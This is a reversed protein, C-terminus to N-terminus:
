RLSNERDHDFPSDQPAGGGQAPLDHSHSQSEHQGPHAGRPMHLDGTVHQCHADQWDYDVMLLHAVTAQQDHTTWDSGRLRKAHDILNAQGSRWLECKGLDKPFPTTIGTDKNVCAPNSCPTLKGAVDKIYEDILSPTATMSKSPDSSYVKIEGNAGRARISAALQCQSAPPGNPFCWAPMTSYRCALRALLPACRALRAGEPMTSTESWRGTDKHILQFCYKLGGSHSRGCAQCPEDPSRREFTNSTGQTGQPPHRSPALMAITAHAESLLGSAQLHAIDATYQDASSDGMGEVELHAVLAGPAMRRGRTREEIPRQQAAARVQAPLNDKALRAPDCLATQVIVRYSELGLTSDRQHMAYEEWAKDAARETFVDKIQIPMAEKYCRLIERFDIDRGSRCVREAERAFREHFEVHQLATLDWLPLRMAKLAKLVETTAFEIAQEPTCNPLLSTLLAAILDTPSTKGALLGEAAAGGDTWIGNSWRVLTRFHGLMVTYTHYSRRLHQQHANETEREHLFALVFHVAVAWSKGTSQLSGYVSDLLTHLDVQFTDPDLSSIPCRHDKLYTRLDDKIAKAPKWAPGATRCTSGEASSIGHQSYGWGTSAPPRHPAKGPLPAPHHTHGGPPQSSAQQPPSPTFQMGVPSPRPPHTPARPLPQASSQRAPPAEPIALRDAAVQRTDGEVMTIEYFPPSRSTIVETITVETNNPIYIAKDGPALSRSYRPEAFVEPIHSRPTPDAPPQHHHSGQHTTPTQGHQAPPAAPTPHPQPAPPGRHRGSEPQPSLSPPNPPNTGTDRAARSPSQPTHEHKCKQFAEQADKAWTHRDALTHIVESNYGHKNVLAELEEFGATGEEEGSEKAMAEYWIAASLLGNHIAENAAEIDANLHPQKHPSSSAGLFRAMGGWTCVGCSRLLAPDLAAGFHTLIKCIASPDLHIKTWQDEFILAAVRAKFQEVKKADAIAKEASRQAPEAASRPLSQATNAPSKPPPTSKLAPPEQPAQTAKAMLTQGLAKYWTRDDKIRVPPPALGDLYRGIDQLLTQDQIGDIVALLHVNLTAGDALHVGRSTFESLLHSRIDTNIDRCVWAQAAQHVETVLTRHTDVLPQTESDFSLDNVVRMDVMHNMRREANWSSNHTGGPHAWARLATRVGKVSFGSTGIKLQTIEPRRIEHENESGCTDKRIGAILAAHFTDNLLDDTFWNSCMAKKVSIHTDQAGEILGLADTSYVAEGDLDQAAKIMEIVAAATMFTDNLTDFTKIDSDQSPVPRQAHKDVGVGAWKLNSAVSCVGALHRAVMHTLYAPDAMQTMPHDERETVLEFVQQQMMELTTHQATAEQLVPPAGMLSAALTEAEMTAVMLLQLEAQEEHHKSPLARPDLADSLAVRASGQQELDGFIQPAQSDTEALTPWKLKATALTQALLARLYSAPPNCATHWLHETLPTDDGRGRLASGLRTQPTATGYGGVVMIAQSRQPPPISAMTHQGLASRSEAHAPAPATTDNGEPAAPHTSLATECPRYSDASPSLETTPETALCVCTGSCAYQTTGLPERPEGPSDACAQCLSHEADHEGEKTIEKTVMLHQSGMRDSAPRPELTSSACPTTEEVAPPQQWRATLSTRYEELALGLLNPGAWNGKRLGSDDSPDLNVGFYHELSGVNTHEVYLLRRDGTSLLAQRATTSHGYQAAIVSQIIEAITDERLGGATIAYLAVQRHIHASGSRVVKDAAGKLHPVRKAMGYAVGQALTLLRKGDYDYSANNFPSLTDDHALIRRPHAHDIEKQQDQTQSQQTRKHRQWNGALSRWTNAMAVMGLSSHVAAMVRPLLGKRRWVEGEESLPPRQRLLPHGRCHSWFAWTLVYSAAKILSAKKPVEGATYTGHLNRNNNLYRRIDKAIGEPLTDADRTPSRIVLLITMISACNLTAKSSHMRSIAYAMLLHAAQQKEAVSMAKGITGGFWFDEYESPNSASTVSTRKEYPTSPFNIADRQYRLPQLLKRDTHWPQLVLLTGDHMIFAAEPIAILKSKTGKGKHLGMIGSTSGEHQRLWWINSKPHECVAGPIMTINVQLAKLEHVLNPVLHENEERHPAVHVNGGTSHRFLTRDFLSSLMVLLLRQRVRGQGKLQIQWTQGSDHWTWGSVSPDSARALHLHSHRQMLATTSASAALTRQEGIDSPTPITNVLLARIVQETSPAFPTVELITSGHGM